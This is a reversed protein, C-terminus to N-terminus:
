TVKTTYSHGLAAGTEQKVLVANCVSCHKGETKGPTTCTAPVAKDTVETHGKANVYNDKYTHSCRSCTHTTYGQTTCTPATLKTTYSHTLPPLTTTVTYGCTCASTEKGSQTCTAEEKTILTLTHNASRFYPFLTLDETIKSLDVPNGKSDIWGAFSYHANEDYTKTPIKGTYVAATGEEVTLSQLLSGDSDRFSLTYTILPKEPLAERPAIAIYDVYIKGIKGNLNRINSFSLRLANIVSATTFSETLPASLTVYQGSLGKQLGEITTCDSPAVEASLDNKLYSISMAPTKGPVAEMNELLLRIQVWDEAKPIYSLPLATLSGNHSTQIYTSTEGEAVSYWLANGDFYAVSNRATNGYWNGTDYNRGGYVSASYRLEGETDNTFDFFLGETHASPAKEVPGVYIYDITYSGTPYNSSGTGVPDVRLGTMVDGVSSDPLKLRLVTYTNDPYSTASHLLRNSGNYQPADETLWFFQLGSYTGSTIHYKVRIEVIDGKQLPYAFANGSKVYPDSGDLNGTMVGSDISATCSHPTWQGIDSLLSEEEFSILPYQGRLTVTGDSSQLYSVKSGNYYVEKVTQGSFNVQITVYKASLDSSEVFLRGNELTAALDSVTVASKLILTNGSSLSAGKALAAFRLKGNGDQALTVTGANTTFSDFSRTAPASEFAHYHYLTKVSPRSSDNVSIRSALATADATGSMTIKTPQVTVTSGEAMPYLITQYTVTGSGSKKYQFYKTTGASATSDYGNQLSGTTASGNVQAILLNAGSTFNTRGTDYSDAAVTPNSYPASHWNQTYSHSASDGPVVKDSVFLIEGLEKMYSVHRYHTFDTSHTVTAGSADKTSLNDTNAKTWSSISSYSDNGAISIEGMNAGASPLKQWTQAKGDIEITNHSRTSSHQFHYHPHSSSASTTGTDTLLSRGDYYYLIALADRHGHYGACKANMFLMSDESSWGTRDTVIKVPSYQAVTEPATGETHSVFHRLAKVNPDNDYDKGLYSLFTKIYGRIASSTSGQGWYPNKGNPYSCDMLYRALLISARAFKKGTATTDKREQMSYLLHSNATLVGRPYGFSVENYSGDDNILTTLVFDVRSEYRKRWNANSKFEPWYSIAAYFGALHFASHNTYASAGHNGNANDFITAGNDMFTLEDYVYALVTKNENATLMNEGLLVKYIYPFNMMRSSTERDRNAPFGSRVNTDAIFDLLIEKLKTLYAKRQAADATATATQALAVLEYFRANSDLWDYDGVGEPQKWDFAGPIDKWSYHGMAKLKVLYNWTLNGETWSKNFSDFQYLPLRDSSTAASGHLRAYIVLETHKTGSPVSFRMYVRRSNINYPLYSGDSNQTMGSKVYLVNDTGYTTDPKGKHIMADASAVVQSLLAGSADYCRLVPRYAENDHERTCIQIAYDPRDLIDLVYCGSTNTTKGFSYFQFGTGNIVTEGVRNESMSWTDEMAFFVRNADKGDAPIPAYSAFRSQYYTLLEAKATAYNGANVATKVKELGEANLNLQAFFNSDSSM